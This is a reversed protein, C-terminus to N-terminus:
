KVMEFNKQQIINNTSSMIARTQLYQPDDYYQVFNEFVKDELEGHYKCVM